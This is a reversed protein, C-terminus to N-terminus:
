ICPHLQCCLKIVRTSNGTSIRMYRIELYKRYKGIVARYPKSIDKCLGNTALM